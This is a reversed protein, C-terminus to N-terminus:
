FSSHFWDTISRIVRDVDTDSMSAYIPLSVCREYLSETVPLSAESVRKSFAAQQHAAKPYHIGPYINRANLFSILQDRNEVQVVFLHYVHDNLPRSIPLTVPLTSLGDQYRKAVKKRKENQVDLHPLLVRLIAAHLEDMRSNLGLELSQFRERWGYQRLAMLRKFHRESNTCVFGADGLTALNKTPYFSFCSFDGFAGIKKGASVSGVAQACDEIVAIKNKKAIANIREMDAPHGYIHVPVIAKTRSSLHPEILDPNMCFTDAEIDIFVPTGGARLIATPTASATHSVTIVEDGPELDCCRLALELADTGNAVGIGFPQNIYDSFECEFASVEPGLIFAGGAFVKDIQQSIQTLYPELDASPNSCYLPEQSLKSKV